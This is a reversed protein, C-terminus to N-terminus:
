SNNWCVHSGFDDRTVELQDSLEQKLETVHSIIGILKADGAMRKLVRIAQTRANDSLSGFGEDIFMMDLHIAASNEQIQDAMGLAMALAAMFSEGGSLTGIERVKGTVASYVMLDLGHNKGEGAKELGYMRLEFQGATMERFRRNAAYLIRELYYRQVFTEIDMRAGTVKGALLNYLEDMRSCLQAVRGRRELEVSLSEYVKRDTKILSDCRNLAEMATEQEKQAEDRLQKLAELDPKERGAIAAAAAAKGSQAGAKKETFSDIRRQLSAPEKRSYRAAVQQWDPLQKEWLVAEYEQLLRAAAEQQDPLAGAYLEIGTRTSQLRNGAERERAVADEFLRGCAEKEREAAQLAQRAEQETAFDKAAELNRLETGAEGLSLEAAKREEEAGFLAERLKEKEADVGSLNRNLRDLRDKEQRLSDAQAQVEMTWANLSSKCAELSLEGPMQAMMGSMRTHLRALGESLNGKKEQYIAESRHAEAAAKEQRLQCNGVRQAMAELQERSVTQHEEPQCPAPHHLSGCVPCPEGDRLQERAILGAQDNLFDTRARQYSDNERKYEEAAAQYAKRDKENRIRYTEAATELDSLADLEGAMDRAQQLKGEWQTLRVPVEALAQAQQRWLKEQQELNKLAEGAERARRDAAQKRCERERLTKEASRIRKFIELANAVRESVRSHRALEQDLGKRAEEAARHAAAQKEEQEPLAARLQELMRQTEAAEKRADTLRDFVAKIEYAGNIQLIRKRCVGIEAEEGACEALLADAKELEEFRTLLQEAETVADRRKGYAEKRGDRLRALVRQRGKLETLLAALETVLGELDTVSLKEANMINGRLRLLEERNEADEPIELHGAETRCVSRIEGMEAEQEKRRNALEEVIRRYIDTNFLKRFIAKKDEPKARLLDMFEGQAIMAVQMFQGKNLGVIQELKQDAEKRPYETGDPMTLTLAEPEEKEGTGKKLPRVHRPVRKVTYIKEETGEQESFVLEVFPEERLQAYQSQLETGSKRNRCSSAEGYLAFVIADFITSKGAGTDGTILFINQRPKTFDVTTRKGYSGFAQMTLKIPKM